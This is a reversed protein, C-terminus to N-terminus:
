KKTSKKSKAKKKSKAAPEAAVPAVPQAVFDKTLEMYSTTNPTDYTFNFRQLDQDTILVKYSSAPKLVTQYKGDIGSSARVKAGAQDTFVLDVKGPAVIGRVTGRLMVNPQGAAVPVFASVNQAIFAFLAAVYLVCVKM